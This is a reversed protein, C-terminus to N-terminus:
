NPGKTDWQKWGAMRLCQLRFVESTTKPGLVGRVQYVLWLVIAKTLIVAQSLIPAKM